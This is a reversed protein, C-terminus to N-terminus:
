PLLEVPRRLPSAPDLLVQDGVALGSRIVVHHRNAPGLEVMRRQTRGNQVIVAFPQKDRWGIASLPLVLADPSVGIEIEVDARQDLSWNKPARDFAVLVMADRREPDLRRELSAVHGPFSEAPQARLIIRAPQGGVLGALATEDVRVEVALADPDALELVPTAAAVVEGPQAYQAVVEGAFPARLSLEDLGAQAADRAATAADRASMAAERSATASALGAEAEALAQEARELEAQSATDAAALARQRRATAAATELSRLALEHQAEAGALDAIAAALAAEAAALDAPQTTDAFRALTVGSDVRDGVAVELAALRMALRPGLAARHLSTLYGPASAVQTFDSPALVLGAVRMPRSLMWWLGLAGAVALLAVGVWFPWRRRPPTPVKVPAVPKSPTPVPQPKRM